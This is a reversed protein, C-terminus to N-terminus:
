PPTPSASKNKSSSPPTSSASKKKSSPPPPSSIFKYNYTKCAWKKVLLKFPSGIFYKPKILQKIFWGLLGLGNLRL